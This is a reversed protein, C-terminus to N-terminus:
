LCDNTFYSRCESGESEYKMVVQNVHMMNSVPVCKPVDIRVNQINLTDNAHM